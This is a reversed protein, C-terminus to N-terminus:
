IFKTENPIMETLVNDIKLQIGQSIKFNFSIRTTPCKELELKFDLHYPGVWINFLNIKLSGIPTKSKNYATVELAKKRLQYENM